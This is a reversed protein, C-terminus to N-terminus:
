RLSHRRRDALMEWPIQTSLMLPHGARQARASAIRMALRERNIPNALDLQTVQLIMWGMSELLRHKQLDRRWQRQETRHQDGAYEIGIKLECDTLDLTIDGGQDSLIDPGRYNM